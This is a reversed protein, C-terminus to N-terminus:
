SPFYSPSRTIVFSNGETTSTEEFPQVKVEDSTGFVEIGSVNEAELSMVIDSSSPFFTYDFTEFLYKMIDEDNTACFYNFGKTGKLDECTKSNFETSIGVITM